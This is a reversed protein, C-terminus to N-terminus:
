CRDSVAGPLITTLSTNGAGKRMLEWAAREGLRKSQRYADVNREAPDFWVTEDSLSEKSSDLPPTANAAASTMVVRKVGADIAAQLVRLAGDRAPGILADPDRPADFGLPSAVHLVFSCGSMAADWGESQNLDAAVM